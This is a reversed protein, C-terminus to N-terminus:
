SIDEELIFFGATLANNGTECFANIQIDTKEGIALPPNYKQDIQQGDSQQYRYDKTQFISGNANDRFQLYSRGTKDASSGIKPGLESHWEYLYNRTNAATTYVAMLSQGFGETIRGIVTSGHKVDIDGDNTAQSGATLVKIRYVRLFQNSLTVNTTGNLAINTEVIKNWNSDLGQVEITRAGTGTSNDSNDNSSVTTTQASTPWPYQSKPVDWVTEFDDADIEPTAGFKAVYTWGPVNGRAVELFFDKRDDPDILGLTKLRDGINGIETGDTGGQITNEPTLDSFSM